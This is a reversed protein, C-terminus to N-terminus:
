IRLTVMLRRWECSGSPMEMAPPNPEARPSTGIKMAATSGSPGALSLSFIPSRITEMLPVELSLIVCLSHACSRRWLGCFTTRSTHQNKRPFHGSILDSSNSQLSNFKKESTVQRGLSAIYSGIDQGACQYAFVVAHWTANQCSPCFSM